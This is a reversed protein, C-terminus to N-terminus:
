DTREITKSDSEEVRAPGDPKLRGSNLLDLHVRAVEWMYENKLQTDFASQLHSRRLAENGVAEYYLALYLHAYLLQGQRAESATGAEDVAALVAEPTGKGAFLNFLQVMPVRTDGTVPMLEARAQETGKERALCLFHWISNEIDAANVTRNAEFQKRAEEYRGAYYLVIGRQWLAPMNEPQAKVLQDFDDASAEIHGLLFHVVARFYHIEHAEPAITLLQDYDRLASERQDMLQYFRARLFYNNPERPNSAIMETAIRLAAERDGSQFARQAAELTAEPASEAGQVASAAFALISCLSILRRNVVTLM